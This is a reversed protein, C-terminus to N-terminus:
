RADGVRDADVNDLGVVAGVAVLTESGTTLYSDHGAARRGGALPRAGLVGPRRPSPRLGFGPLSAGAAARRIRGTRGESAALVTLGGPLDASRASRGAGWCRRPQGCRHGPGPRGSAALSVVLLGTATGSWRSRRRESAAEALERLLVALGAAGRRASVGGAATWAGDAPRLRALRGGRRRDDPDASAPRRHLGRSAPEGPRAPSSAASGAPPVDALTTDVGPVVSRSGTPPLGSRRGGRGRTGDGRPDFSSSGAVSSGVWVPTRAVLLRACRRGSGVPYAATPTAGAAPAAVSRPRVPSWRCAACRSSRRQPSLYGDFSSHGDRRTM